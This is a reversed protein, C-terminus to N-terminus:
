WNKSQKEKIWCRTTENQVSQEAPKEKKLETINQSEISFKIM